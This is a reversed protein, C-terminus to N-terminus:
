PGAIGWPEVVWGGGAARWRVPFAQHSGEQGGAFGVLGTAGQRVPLALLAERVAGREGARSGASEVAEALLRAADYALASLADPDRGEAERFARVFGEPVAGAPGPYAAASYAPSGWAALALALRASGEPPLLPDTVWAPSTGARALAQVLAPLEAPPAALFVASPQARYVEERVRSLWPEEPKPLVARAAPRGAAETFARAQRAARGDAVEVLVWRGGGRRAAAGVARAALGEAPGVRFVWKGPPFREESGTGVVVLPAGAREALWALAQATDEDAVALLAAVRERELLLDAARVAEQPRGGSDRVELRLRANGALALRAARQAARGVPAEEGSLPALLGLVPGGGSAASAPEGPLPVVPLAPRPWGGLWGSCGGLLAAALLLLLAAVAALCGQRARAPPDEWSGGSGSGAYLRTRHARKLERVFADWNGQRKYAAALNERAVAYDPDEELARRYLAIAQDLAGEELYTTALNSLAPVYRADQELASRFAERAGQLDGSRARCVGLKNLAPVFGPEEELLQRLLEEARALEGAQMHRLAKDWLGRLGPGLRAEYPADHKVSEM